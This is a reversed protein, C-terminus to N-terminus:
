LRRKTMASLLALFCRLANAENSFQFRFNVTDLVEVFSFVEEENQSSIENLRGEESPYETLLLEQQIPFKGPPFQYSCSSLVSLFLTLTTRQSLSPFTYIFLITFNTLRNNGNFIHLSNHIYRYLVPRIEFKPASDSIILDNTRSVM